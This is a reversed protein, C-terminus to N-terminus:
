QGDTDLFLILDDIGLRALQAGEDGLKEVAFPYDHDLALDLRLQMLGHDLQARGDALREGLRVLLKGPLAAEDDVQRRLLVQGDNRGCSVGEAAPEALG